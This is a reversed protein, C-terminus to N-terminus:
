EIVHNGSLRLVSLREAFPVGHLNADELAGYPVVLITLFNQLIM